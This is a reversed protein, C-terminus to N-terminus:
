IKKYWIKHCHTAYFKCQQNNVYPVDNLLASNERLNHEVADNILLHSHQECLRGIRTRRGKVSFARQGTAM